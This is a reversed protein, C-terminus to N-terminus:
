GYSSSHYYHWRGYTMDQGLKRLVPRPSHVKGTTPCGRQWLTLYAFHPAYQPKPRIAVLEKGRLRIEEFTELLLQQRQSDEVGPHKWLAPLNNLLEAARDINPIQVSPVTSKLAQLQRRLGEREKLYDQDSLDGWLNQKRLQELARQM